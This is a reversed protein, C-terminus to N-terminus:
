KNNSTHKDAIQRNECLGLHFNNDDNNRRSLFIRKLQEVSVFRNILNNIVSNM